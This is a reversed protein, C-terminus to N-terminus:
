ESEESDTIAEIQSVVADVTDADAKKFSLTRGGVEIETTADCVDRRDCAAAIAKTAAAFAGAVLKIPLHGFAPEPVQIPTLIVARNQGALLATAIIQDQNNIDFAALITYGSGSSDLLTSLSVMGLDSKYIFAGTGLSEGVATGANNIGFARALSDSPSLKGLTLLTNTDIDFLAADLGASGAALRSDNIDSPNFSGLGTASSGDSYFGGSSGLRGAFQGNGNIAEGTANSVPLPSTLINTESWRIARNATSVVRSGVVENNENLDNAVGNNAPDLLVMGDSTWRFAQGGTDGVIHDNNNIDRGNSDGSGATGLNQMGFDPEWLFARTEGGPLTSSGTAKGNDNIAAGTSSNGGLTGLDTLNYITAGFASGQIMFSVLCLVLSKQFM